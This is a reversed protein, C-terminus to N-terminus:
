GRENSMNFEEAFFDAVKCNLAIALKRLTGVTTSSMNGSELMSITARSVNSRKSLEEQSMGAAVRKLKLENAM